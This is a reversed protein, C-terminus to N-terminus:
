IVGAYALVLAIATAVVIVLGALFIWLGVRFLLLGKPFTLRGSVVRALYLGLVMFVIALIASAFLFSYM